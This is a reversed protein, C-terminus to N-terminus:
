GNAALIQRFFTDATGFIGSWEDQTFGHRSLDLEVTEVAVGRERLIRAWRRTREPPIVPDRAAHILLTHPRRVIDGARVNGASAVGVVARIETTQVAVESALYGGRSYGMAVLRAPDAGPLTLSWGAADEVARAWWRVDDKEAADAAGSFYDPIVIRYGLAALRRGQHYFTPFDARFGGSGHLLLLTTGRMPGDAAEALIVVPRDHGRTRYTTQGAGELMAQALAPGPGFGAAAMLGLSHRRTLIM